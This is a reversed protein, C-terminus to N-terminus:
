EDCDPPEPRSPPPPRNPGRGASAPPPSGASGTTPPRAATRPPSPSPKPSISADRRSGVLVFGYAPFDTDLQQPLRKNVGGLTQEGERGAGTYVLIDNEIRDHYPHESLQRATPVSTLIVVRRVSGEDAISMRIGGANGVALANQIEESSYLTGVRFSTPGAKAMASDETGYLTGAEPAQHNSTKFAGVPRIM